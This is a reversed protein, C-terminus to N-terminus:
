EGGEAGASEISEVLSRTECSGLESIGLAWHGIVLQGVSRQGSVVSWQGSIGETEM